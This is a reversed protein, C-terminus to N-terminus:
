HFVHWLWDCIFTQQPQVFHMWLAGSCLIGCSFWQAIVHQMVAMADIGKTRLDWHHAMAGVQWGHINMNLSGGCRVHSWLVHPSDMVSSTKLGMLTALPTGTCGGALHPYQYLPLLLHLAKYLMSPLTYHLPCHALPMPWWLPTPDCFPMRWLKGLKLM